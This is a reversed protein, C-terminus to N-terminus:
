DWDIVTTPPTWNGPYPTPSPTANSLNQWTNGGQSPNYRCNYTHGGESRTSGKPSCPEGKPDCATLGALIATALMAAFSANRFAKTRNM